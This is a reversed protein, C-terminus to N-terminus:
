RRVMAKKYEAAMQRGDLEAYIQTTSLSAHGLLEQIERLNAGNGLLHSAFSHRLAHPTVTAPLGWAQRRERMTRQVTGQHLRRGHTGLFLPRATTVPQPCAALYDLVAANVMALVPVQRERGSKGTVRLFGDRPLDACNLALAENIRLGSGYLLLFLAHDRRHTWHPDPPPEILSEIVSAPIPRPLKHPRRPARLTAIHPNSGLGQREIWRYLNKVAALARARSSAGIGRAALHSLWARFEGLSVLSFDAADHCARIGLFADVDLKYARITHPSLNRGTSLHRHWDDIIEM